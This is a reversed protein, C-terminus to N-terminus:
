PIRELRRDMWVALEELGVRRYFDRLREYRKRVDYGLNWQLKRLCTPCLMGVQRDMEDLSNSGNMLCEYETCHELSFMHGAEHALVQISRRLAKRRAAESDPEGSFAPFFRALSYVGVRKDLSALGFVFNWSPEPYLDGMTVGLTCIATPALRPALLDDLIVGAHHQKHAGGGRQGKRPLDMDTAIRVPVDFFISTLERLTELVERQAPDFPGLPQLVIEKRHATPRVPLGSVYKEYSQGKEPFRALWDGSRPPRKKEFLEPDFAYPDFRPANPELQASAVSSSSSASAAALPAAAPPDPAQAPVSAQLDPPETRVPPARDCGAFLAWAVVVVGLFTRSSPSVSAM